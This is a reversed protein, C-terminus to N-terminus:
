WWIQNGNEYTFIREEHGKTKNHLVYLGGCPMSDLVLKTSEAKKDALTQWFGNWCLMEYEDGIEIGNGDNRGIFRIKSVSSPHDLRLGVWNGDPSVSSFGTLIDGDFVKEKLAWPEGETGIIAGKLLKDEPSYFELENINCHSAAPGIYRLYKFKTDDKVEVEYWNGNTAGEFRYLTTADSFDAENAGQFKGGSMRLNFFDEKGMFPYKRLLTMSQKKSFNVSINRVRGDSEICFPDGFPVVHGDDYFAAMYMINRGMSTFTVKGDRICGYHVPIWQRNDFVCIYAIHRGKDSTPVDRTVDTTEYYEDTVDTFKPMHFLAPVCAEHQLDKAYTKNLQYRYRFVKPKKYPHYYHATDGPACGMYFPIGTGDPKIIVSWAHSLSHNGWHPTFDVAAPIGLSRCLYVTYSAEDRCNGTKCRLLSAAKPPVVSEYGIWEYQNTIDFLRLAESIASGRVFTDDVMRRRKGTEIKWLQCDNDSRTNQVLTDRTGVRKAELYMGSDKNMLRCYGDGCPLAVWKQNSGNLSKYLGVPSEPKVSCYETELCLDTTDDHASIRWCGYGRYDMRLWQKLDSDNRIAAEAVCPLSDYHSAISIYNRTMKNEIRCYYESFDTSMDKCLQEIAGIQVYDVGITDGAFALSILNKGKRLNLLCAKRSTSFSYNAQTPHLRLTEQVVGNVSVCLRTNRAPATYRVFMQKRESDHSDIAFTVAQGYSSLLIYMGESAGDAKVLSGGDHEADEAEYIPGRKSIVDDTFLFPYEESAFTRWYSLPEDVIRYPLVYDFFIDRPYDKSWSANQWAMCAEDINQILYDSKMRKLDSVTMRDDTITEIFHGYMGSRESTPYEAMACYASDLADVYHGEYTYNYPMNVLLFKAADIKLNDSTGEFHKIVNEIETINSGSLELVKNIGDDCSPLLIASVACLVSSYLSCSSLSRERTITLCYRVGTRRFRAWSAASAKKHRDTKMM